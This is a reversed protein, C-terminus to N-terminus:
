QFKQETKSVIEQLCMNVITKSCIFEHAFKTKYKLSGDLLARSHQWSKNRKMSRPFPYLDLEKVTNRKM